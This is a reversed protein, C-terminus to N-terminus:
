KGKGRLREVVGAWLRWHLPIVTEAQSAEYFKELAQLEGGDLWVGCGDPCEDIVIQSGMGFPRKELTGKCKPCHAPAAIGQEVAVYSDKVSQMPSPARRSHDREVAKQIAELEGADLWTGRCAACADVEIEAEYKKTELQTGDRPCLM